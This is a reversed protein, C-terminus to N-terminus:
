HTPVMYVEGTRVDKIAIGPFNGSRAAALADEPRGWVGEGLVATVRRGFVHFGTILYCNTLRQTEM